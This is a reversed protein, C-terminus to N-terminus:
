SSTSAMIIPPRSGAREMDRQWSIAISIPKRYDLNLRNYERPDAPAFAPIPPPTTAASSM